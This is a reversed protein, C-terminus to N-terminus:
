LFVGSYIRESGWGESEMYLHFCLGENALAGISGFLPDGGGGAVILADMDPNSNYLSLAAAAGEESSTNAYVPETITAQDDPNARDRICM